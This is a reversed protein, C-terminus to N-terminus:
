LEPTQPMKKQSYLKDLITGTKRHPRSEWDKVPKKRLLAVEAMKELEQNTKFKNAEASPRHGFTKVYEELKPTLKKPKLILKDM